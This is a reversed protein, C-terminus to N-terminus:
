STSTPRSRWPVTADPWTAAQRRLEGFREDADPAGGYVIRFVWGLTELLTDRCIEQPPAETITTSDM